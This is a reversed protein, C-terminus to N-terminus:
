GLGGSGPVLPGDYTGAAVQAEVLLDHGELFTAEAQAALERATTLIVSLSPEEILAAEAALRAAARYLGLADLIRQRAQILDLVFAEGLGRGRVAAPVDVAEIGGEVPTLLGLLGEAAAAARVVGRDDTAADLADVFAAPAALLDPAARLGLPELASEISSTLTEAVEARVAPDAEDATGALEGSVVAVLLGLLAVAAGGTAMWRLRLSRAPLTSREPARRPAGTGRGKSGRRRSGIAM